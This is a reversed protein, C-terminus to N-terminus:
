ALSALAAWAEAEAALSLDALFPDAHGLAIATRGSQVNIELWGGDEAEVPTWGDASLRKLMHGYDSAHLSVPSGLAMDGDPRPLVLLGVGAMPNVWATHAATQITTSATHM